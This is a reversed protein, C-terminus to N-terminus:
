RRALARILRVGKVQLAAIRRFQSDVERRYQEIEAELDEVLARLRVNARRLTEVETRAPSFTRVASAAM